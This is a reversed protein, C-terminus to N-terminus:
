PHKKTKGKQPGKGQGKTPRNGLWTQLAQAPKSMSQNHQKAQIGLLIWVTNQAMLTLCRWVEEDRLTIQLHWPTMESQPKLNHFRLIHDSDELLEEMYQLEKLM